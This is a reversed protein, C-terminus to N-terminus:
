RINSETIKKKKNVRHGLLLIIRRLLSINRQRTAPARNSILKYLSCRSGSRAARAESKHPTDIARSGLMDFGADVEALM